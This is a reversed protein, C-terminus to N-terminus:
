AEAIPRYTARLSAPSPPNAPGNPGVLGAQEGTNVRFSADQLVVQTGYRKSVNCFDIM